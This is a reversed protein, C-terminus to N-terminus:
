TSKPDKLARVAAPDVSVVHLDRQPFPIAIGAADLSRSVAVRVESAVLTWTEFRRTWFRLQFSLASDGFGTFIALPPPSVLVGEHGRAAEELLKVVRDPDTGYAVGVDVEIRRARDSLTWNVLENSILNSNPVVVEAGQFTKVTSSRVGIRAIEGTTKGIEVVDGLRVPREYLLILGSVFNNVVGQLGLGIGVGVTGVLVTFRTVDMGSALVAFWLGVLVVAYSVTKSIATPVGPPFGRDQMTGELVFRLFRSLLLSAWLTLGFAVVDGLSVDLGGVRLRAGLVDRVTEWLPGDVHFLVAAAAAWAALALGRIWRSGVRAFADRRERDAAFRKALPTRMAGLLLARLVLALALLMAAVQASALVAVTLRRSLSVNGVVNAIVATALLGAAGALAGTAWRRTGGPTVQEKWARSRWARFIALLGLVAVAIMILRGSASYEPILLALRTFAFLATLEYLPRRLQAPTIGRMVVLFPPLMLLLVSERVAAPASSSLFIWPFLGLAVLLSAAWPHALVEAPAALEPDDKAKLALRRGVRRIAWAVVLWAVVPIWITAREDRLFSRTAHVNHLFSGSLQEGLGRARPAGLVKWLPRAEIEFIQNEREAQARAVGEQWGLIRIRESAIREQTELISAVVAKAREEAAVVDKRVEAIRALVEPPAEETRAAELTLTWTRSMRRLDALAAHVATQAKELKGGLRALVADQRDLEQKADSVDRDSMRELHDRSVQTGAREAAEAAALAQELVSRQAGEAVARDTISQITRYADVAARSIQPLPIPKPEPTRTGEGGQADAPKPDAPTPIPLLQGDARVPSSLAATAALLVALSRLRAFPMGAM